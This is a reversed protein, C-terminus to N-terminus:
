TSVLRLIINGGNQNEFRTKYVNTEHFHDLYKAGADYVCMASLARALITGSERCVLLCSRFLIRAGIIAGIIKLPNTCIQTKGLCPNWGVLLFRICSRLAARRM